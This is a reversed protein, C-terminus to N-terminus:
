REKAAKKAVFAVWDNLTLKEVIEFGNSVLAENVADAKTNIIGSSIFLSDEKMFEGAVASLPIIVDALINAVVINFDNGYLKRAKSDELVNSCYFGCGLDAATLVNMDDAPDVGPAKESFASKIGNQGANEASVGVAIEDIDTGLVYGAGLKKAVISLIGSGCGIDIVKDNAKLYKKLACICLKTTEHAGTGFATGPDIEIVLDGDKKDPLEDVWTPKIIISEDVRFPKFYEKWNNIWDKDETEGFEFKVDSVDTFASLEELGENVRKKTEEDPTEEDTYFSIRTYGDNAPLEPLIDIFMKKKDEESIQFNDVTEIGDFGLEVLMNGVLDASENKVTLTIKKWKM